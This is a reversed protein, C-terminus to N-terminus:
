AQTGFQDLVKVVEEFVEDPPPVSSIVHARGKETLICSLVFFWYLPTSSLSYLM